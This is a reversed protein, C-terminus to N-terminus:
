SLDLLEWIPQVHAMGRPLGLHGDERRAGRRAAVELQSPVEHNCTAPM